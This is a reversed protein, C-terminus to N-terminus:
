GLRSFCKFLSWLNFCNTGESVNFCNTGESVNFCNTGESVDDEYLEMWVLCKFEECVNVEVYALM